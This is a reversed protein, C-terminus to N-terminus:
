TSMASPMDIIQVEGFESHDFEKKIKIEEKENTKKLGIMNETILPLRM